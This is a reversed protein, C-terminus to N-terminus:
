KRKSRVRVRKAKEQVADSAQFSVANNPRQTLDVGKCDEGLFNVTDGQRIDMKLLDSLKMEIIHEGEELQFSKQEGKIAINEIVMETIEGQRPTTLLFKTKNNPCM